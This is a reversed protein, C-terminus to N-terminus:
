RLLALAVHGGLLSVDVDVHLRDALLKSLVKIVDEGDTSDAVLAPFSASLISAPALRALAEPDRAKRDSRRHRDYRMANMRTATATAIPPHLPASPPAPRPPPTM